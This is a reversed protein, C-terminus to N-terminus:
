KPSHFYLMSRM